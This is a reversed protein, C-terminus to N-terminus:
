SLTPSDVLAHSTCMKLDCGFRGLKELAKFSHKVIKYIFSQLFVILLTSIRNFCLCRLILQLAKLHCVWFVTCTYHTITYKLHQTHTHTKKPRWADTSSMHWMTTMGPHMLNRLIRCSDAKEYPLMVGATIILKSFVTCSRKIAFDIRSPLCTTSMIIPMLLRLILFQIVVLQAHIMPNGKALNISICLFQRGCSQSAQTWLLM